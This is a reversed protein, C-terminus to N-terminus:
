YTIRKNTIISQTDESPLDSQGLNLEPAQFALSEFNTTQRINNSTAPIATFNKLQSDLSEFLMHGKASTTNITNNRPSVPVPPDICPNYSTMANKKENMTRVMDELYELEMQTQNVEEESSDIKSKLDLNARRLNENQGLLADRERQCSTLAEQRSQMEYELESTRRKMNAMQGELQMLTSKNQELHEIRESLKNITVKQELSERRVVNLEQELEEKERQKQFIIEHLSQENKCRRKIEEDASSKFDKWETLLSEIRKSTEGRVCKARDSLRQARASSDRHGQGLISMRNPSGGGYSSRGSASPAMLKQSLLSGTKFSESTCMSNPSFTSGTSSTTHSKSPIFQQAESCVKRTENRLKGLKEKLERNKEKLESLMANNKNSKTLQTSYLEKKKQYLKTSHLTGM